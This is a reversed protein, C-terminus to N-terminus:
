QAARVEDLRNGVGGVRQAHTFDYHAKANDRAIRATELLRKQTIITLYARATSTAITRRIDAENARAVDIQDGAQGWLVWNKPEIIPVNLTANLNLQGLPDTVNGDSVRDADLRTYTGYGYLTPLSSARVQEMLAHFRRVEDTAQLATPNRSLARQVADDFTVIEEPPEPPPAAPLVPADPVTAGPTTSPDLALAPAAAAGFALAISGAAVPRFSSRAFPRSM